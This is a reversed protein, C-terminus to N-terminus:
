GRGITDLLEDRLSTIKEDIIERITDNTSDSLWKKHFANLSNIYDEECDDGSKYWDLDHTLKLLDYMLQSVIVDNYPNAPAKDSSTDWGYMETLLRNDQYEFHGGSM